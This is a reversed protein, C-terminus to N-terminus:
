PLSLSPKKLQTEYDTFNIMIEKKVISMEKPKEIFFSLTLFFLVFMLSCIFIKKEKKDFEFFPQSALNFEKRLLSVVMLNPGKYFHMNEGPGMIKWGGTDGEKATLETLGNFGPLDKFFIDGNKNKKLFSYEDDNEFFPGWINNSRGKSGISIEDKLFDRKEEFILVGCSFYQIQVIPIRATQEHILNESKKPIPREDTEKYYFSCEELPTIDSILDEEFVIDRKFYDNGISEKPLQPISSSEFIGELVGFSILDGTELSTKKKKKGNIILDQSFSLSQIFHKGDSNIGILIEYDSLGEDSLVIDCKHSSGILTQKNPIEYIDPDLKESFIKLRLPAPYYLNNSKM